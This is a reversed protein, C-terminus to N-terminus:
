SHVAKEIDRRITGSVRRITKAVDDWSFRIAGDPLVLHPLANRRALRESRGPSWRLRRDIEEGFLLEPM